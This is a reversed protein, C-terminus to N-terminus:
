TYAYRKILALYINFTILLPLKTHSTTVKSKVQDTVKNTICSDLFSDKIEAKM